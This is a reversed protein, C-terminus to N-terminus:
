AVRRRIGITGNMGTSGTVFDFEHADYARHHKECMQCSGATTHRVEPPLGRTLSRRQRGVHAWQSPGECAGLLPGHAHPWRTAIVCHGDRAVTHERVTKKVKSEQRDRRAKTRKRPEPKPIALASYDIAM